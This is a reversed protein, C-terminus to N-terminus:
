RAPDAGSPSLVEFIGAVQHFADPEV